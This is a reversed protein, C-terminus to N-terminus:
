FETEMHFVVKIQLRLNRNTPDFFINSDIQLTQFTLITIFHRFFSNEENLFNKMLAKELINELGFVMSCM